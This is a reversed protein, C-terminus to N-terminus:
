KSDYYNENIPVKLSGKKIYITSNEDRRQFAVKLSTTTFEDGGRMYYYLEETM